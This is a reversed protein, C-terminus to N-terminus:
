APRTRRRQAWGAVLLGAVIGAADAVLDGAEFARGPLLRQQVAESVVAQGAMLVAVPVPALGAWRAALTVVFFMGAHVLKDIPLDISPGPASPAYLALVQGGFVVAFALWRLWAPVPRSTVRGTM